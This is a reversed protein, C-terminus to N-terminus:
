AARERSRADVQDAVLGGLREGQRSRQQRPEYRALWDSYARQREVDLTTPEEDGDLGGRSRADHFDIGSEVRARARLEDGQSAGQEAAETLNGGDLECRSRIPLM